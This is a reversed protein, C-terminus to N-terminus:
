EGVTKNEDNNDFEHFDDMNNFFKYPGNKLKAVINCNIDAFVYDVNSFSNEILTRADNLLKLRKKTLDLHIKHNCEKRKKYLM